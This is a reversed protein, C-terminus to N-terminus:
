RAAAAAPIVLNYVDHVHVDPPQLGHQAGIPGIHAIWADFIEPSEWVDVIVLKDGDPCSVHSILGKPPNNQVDLATHVEDYKAKANGGPMQFEIVALVAM